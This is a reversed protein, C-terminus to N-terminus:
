VLLADDIEQHLRRTVRGDGRAAQRDGDTVPQAQVRGHRAGSRQGRGPQGLPGAQDLTVQLFPQRDLGAQAVQLVVRGRPRERQGGLVRGHESYAV